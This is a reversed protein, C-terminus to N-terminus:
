SCGVLRWMKALVTCGSQVWSWVSQCVFFVLFSAPADIKHRYQAWMNSVSFKWIEIPVPTPDLRSTWTNKASWPKLYTPEKTSSSKKKDPFVQIHRLPLVTTTGSIITPINTHFWLLGELQFWNRFLLLQRVVLFLKGDNWSFKWHCSPTFLRRGQYHHLVNVFFARFNARTLNMINNDILRFSVKWEITILPM